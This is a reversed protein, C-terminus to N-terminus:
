TGISTVCRQLPVFNPRGNPDAQVQLVNAEYGGHHNDATRAFDINCNPPVTRDYGALLLGALKNRTCTSGCQTLLDAIQKQGEWNLFLLDGGDGTLQAHPDYQKYMAEFQHIQDAYPAFGGGYYGPDYADWAAVGLIPQDLSSSGLTQTELNFPFVLWAPHYNQAQAQKIMETTALANEWAFVVKAGAAHLEALEQTYNGQNITVGYSIVKMGAGQVVRTFADSGPQWNSSERYLVGVTQGRFRQVALQGFMTGMQEVTPLPSFSYRLGASGEITAIHHYYLEHNQEAWQRVAPIQDFGIGGLLIFTNLDKCAQAAQVATGPDYNDNEFDAHIHRGYIGGHDNLWQWYVSLDSASINFASGYTLAAHACLEIQNSTIGITDDAGQYLNAVPPGGNSPFFV